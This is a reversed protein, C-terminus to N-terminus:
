LDAAELGARFQGPTVGYQKKFTSIFHSTSEYGVALGIGTVADRRTHLLTRARDLRRAKRWQAPLAGFIRRFERSFAPVSRGSRAALDSTRLGHDRLAGAM